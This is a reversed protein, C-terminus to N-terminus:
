RGLPPFDEPWKQEDCLHRLYFHRDISFKDNFWVFCGYCLYKLRGCRGKWANYQHEPIGRYIEEEEEEEITETLKDSSEDLAGAQKLGLVVLATEKLPEPLIDIPPLETEADPESNFSQLSAHSGDQFEKGGVDELDVNLPSKKPMFDNESIRENDEGCEDADPLPEDQPEPSMPSEADPGTSTFPISSQPEDQVEPGSVDDPDVQDNTEEIKGGGRGHGILEPQPENEATQHITDLARDPNTSFYARDRRRLESLSGPVPGSGLDLLHKMAYHRRLTGNTYFATKKKGTCLLCWTYSVLGGELAERSDRAKSARTKM